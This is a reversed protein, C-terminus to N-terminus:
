KVELTTSAAKANGGGGDLTLIYIGKPLYYKGNKQQQIDLESNEKELLKKAKETITMDYVATNIGTQPTLPIRQLEKGDKNQVVLSFKGAYSTYYNVNLSPEFPELWKSWSSGWRPSSKVENVSYLQVDKSSDRDQIVTLDAKYISRGHTGLLLHNDRKQIKIDHIAVAPLDKAFAHYEGGGNISM